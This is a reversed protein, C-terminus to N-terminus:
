HAPKLNRTLRLKEVSVVGPMYRTISQIINDLTLASEKDPDIISPNNIFSTTKKVKQYTLEAISLEVEQINDRDFIIHFPNLIQVKNLVLNNDHSSQLRVQEISAQSFNLELGSLQQIVVEGALLNVLQSVVIDKEM